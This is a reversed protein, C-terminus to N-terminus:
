LTDFAYGVPSVRMASGNGYSNYPQPDDSQAWRHFMGGYGAKPYAWYYRKLLDVFSTGNLLSDALAVTLVTDDSFRCYEHFLPFDTTKINAMEYISGIIDGAIAGLMRCRVM